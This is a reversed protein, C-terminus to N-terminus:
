IFAASLDATGARQLTSAKARKKERADTLIRTESARSRIQARPTKAQVAARAVSGSSPAKPAKHAKMREVTM